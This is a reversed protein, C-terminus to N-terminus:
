ASPGALQRPLSNCAPVQYSIELCSSKTKLSSRQCTSVWGPEATFFGGASAPTARWSLVQRGGQEWGPASGSSRAVAAGRPAGTLGGESGQLSLRERRGRRGRPDSGCRPEGM